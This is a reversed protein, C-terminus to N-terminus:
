WKIPYRYPSSAGEVRRVRERGRLKLKQLRNLSIQQSTLESTVPFHVNYM